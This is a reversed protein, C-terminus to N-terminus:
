RWRKRHLQNWQLILSKHQNVAWQKNNQLIGQCTDAFKLVQPNLKECCRELEKIVKECKKEQYDNASFM